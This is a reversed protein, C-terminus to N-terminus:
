ARRLLHEVLMGKVKVAATYADLGAITVVLDAKRYSRNFYTIDKKIERLYLRKEQDTLTRVIPVSDKDFFTIRELINEADDALVVAMGNSNKVINWYPNMLGSATLAIVANKAATQQLLHHLAKSAEKQYSRFSGFRDQLREIPANFFREIEDDLDFFSFAAGMMPALRAGVTTKGVCGVGVLFIKM